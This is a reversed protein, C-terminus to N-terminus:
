AMKTWRVLTKLDPPRGHMLLGVRFVKGAFWLAGLAALISELVCLWIQWAPPPSTSTMRLLMTFLSIPPVFSLTMSLAGGPDRSIPFWLLWPVMLVLMVPTLLSSAESVDDVAAGIAGMLAALLTYSLVYFLVLMLLMSLDILDLLAFSALVAVGMAAYIGLMVFGVGMQALIKGTMLELPSVASLLLEVVRSSKDEVTNTMLQSGTTLVSMLLLAMFGAPILRHLAEHSAREGGATVVRTSAGELETLSSIQRPDLGAAQVRAEVIARKLGDQIERQLRDDLRSPVLLDYAGYRGGSSRAANAHVTVIALLDPPREGAVRHPAAGKIRPAALDPKWADVQAPLAPVLHLVPIQSMAKRLAQDVIADRAAGAPGERAPEPLVSEVTRRVRSDLKVRRQALVEASLERALFPLVEGGPDVVAVTGETRPAQRNIVTPLVLVMVGVILPLILVGVIFGKTLVTALFERRAVWLIKTM